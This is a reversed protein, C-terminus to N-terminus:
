AFHPPARPSHLEYETVPGFAAVLHSIDAARGVLSPAALQMALVPAAVHPSAAFPCEEHEHQGDAPVPQGPSQREAHHGSADATCIIFATTGTPDPMWGAPLVARLLLAIIALHIAARRCRSAM